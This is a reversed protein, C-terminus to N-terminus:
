KLWVLEIETPDQMREALKYYRESLTSLYDQAKNGEDNLCKLKDIGWFNVLHDIISAYDYSTYEGIKQTINVYNFYQKKDTGFDMLNAPMTIKKKMM